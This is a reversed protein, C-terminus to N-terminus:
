KEQIDGYFKQRVPDTTDGAYFLGAFSALRGMLDDLAEMERIAGALEGGYARAMDQLRGKYRAAFATAESEARALDAKVEASDHAPYLDALDWEPLDGLEDKRAAAEDAPARAIAATHATARAPTWIPAATM